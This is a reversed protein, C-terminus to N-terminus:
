IYPNTETYILVKGATIRNPIPATKGDDRIEPVKLQLQLWRGLNQDHLIVLHPTRLTNYIEFENTDTRYIRVHPQDEGPPLIDVNGNKEPDYFGRETWKTRQNVLGPPPRKEWFGAEIIFVNPQRATAQLIIGFIFLTSLIITSTFKM